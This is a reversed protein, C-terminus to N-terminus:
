GIQHVANLIQETTMTSGFADFLAQWAPLIDKIDNFSFCQGQVNIYGKCCVMHTDPCPLPQYHLLHGTSSFVPTTPPTIACCWHGDGDARQRSRWLLLFQKASEHLDASDKTEFFKALYDKNKSQVQIIINCFLAFVIINLLTHM